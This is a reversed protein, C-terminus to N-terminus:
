NPKTDKKSRFTKEGKGMIEKQYYDAGPVGSAEAIKLKDDIIKKFEDKPLAGNIFQGNIFFTPTANVHWKELETMDQQIFKQCDDSKMDTKFKAADMGLDTAIKVVNDEGLPASDKGQSAAYPGFGKEWFATKFAVYKNQKAAACSGLHAPIAPQHVVMNKYVVRVKGKYDKVLEDMTAATRQCYPCAFDFAKVVTVLATAPGDVQGAKVDNAIDVAFTADPAAANEEEEQQQKKQAEAQGKQQAIVKNVFELAETYKAMNTELRAIRDEVTGGTAVPIAGPAPKPMNDLQSPAQECAFLCIVAILGLRHM